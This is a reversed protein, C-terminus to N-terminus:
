GLEALAERYKDLHEVAYERYDFQLTSKVTQIVAWLVERLLSVTKLVQLERLTQRDPLDGYAALLAEEQQRELGANVAYNALDFLSNGM